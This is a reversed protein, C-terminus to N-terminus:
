CWDGPAWDRDLRGAGVGARAGVRRGGRKRCQDHRQEGGAYYRPQRWICGFWDGVVDAGDITIADATVAAPEAGLSAASNISLTGGTISTKGTFTNANNLAFTGTGTKTVGGPGGISAGGITYDNGALNGALITAVTVPAAVTINRNPGTYSNDFRVADGNSFTASGGGLRWNPTVTNWTADVAGSWTKTAAVALAINTPNNVLNFVLDGSPVSGLVVSGLGGRTGFELMPYIGTGFGALTSVNLTTTGELTLTNGAGSLVVRDHNGVAGFNFDLISGDRLTLGNSGITLTNATTPTLHPAIHGGGGVIVTNAGTPSITGSGSLTAGSAIAVLGTGTASGSTNTARLTGGVVSTVGSYTNAGSLVLTGTGTKTIGTTGTIAAGGLTYTPVAGGNDVTIFAPSVPATINISSNAPNGTNNFLVQDGNVYNSPAFNAATTSWVNSASGTWTKLPASSTVRLEVQNPTQVVAYNFGLGPNTGVTIGGGGLVNGGSHTIIPYTAVTLGGVNALNLTNAGFLSLNNGPGTLHVVDSVGPAGINYNLVTGGNLTLGNNAITLASTGTPTTHPSLIGGTNITVTNFIDPVITGSGGLTAGSQVAVLGTGTGSGATNNVLLTGHTVETGSSYTNNGSLVVVGRGAVSIGAIGNPDDGEIVTDGITLSGSNSVVGAFEVRGGTRATFRTSVGNLNINGSFRTHDATFGGVSM